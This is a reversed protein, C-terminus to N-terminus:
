SEVYVPQQLGEDIRVQQKRELAFRLKERVGKAISKTYREELADLESSEVGPFNGTGFAQDTVHV